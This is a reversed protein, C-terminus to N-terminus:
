RANPPTGALLASFDFDYFDVRTAVDRAYVLSRGDSSIMVNDIARTEPPVSAIATAKGTAVDVRYFTGRGVCLRGGGEACDPSAVILEAGDDRVWPNRGGGYVRFSLPVSRHDSGDPHMLEISWRQDPASQQRIAMWRGNSSFTPVPPTHPMKTGDRTYILRPTGRARFNTVRYEGNIWTSVLSDDIIKGCYTGGNCRTEFAHLVRDQGDLAVERIEIKKPSDTNNAVPDHLAYLLARSDGRWRALPGMSSKAVLPRVTSTGPDLLYVAGRSSYAIFRGDPSWSMWHLTAGGPAREVGITRRTGSAVDSVVVGAPNWLLVALTRGDGSWTPTLYEASDTVLRDQGTTLDTVHVDRLTRGLAGVGKGGMALLEATPDNEEDYFAHLRKGSATAVVVSDWTSDYAVIFRGDPSPGPYAGWGPTRLVFQPKGAAISMRYVGNKQASENERFSLGFYVSDTKTWAIPWIDGKTRAVVREPGGNTPIVVLNKATLGAPTAFAISKGDPAFAPSTAALISARRPAGNPLGTKADLTATWLQADGGGEANRTFALRDGVPSVVVSAGVGLLNDLIHTSRRTGRDFM